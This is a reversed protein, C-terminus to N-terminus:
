VLEGREADLKVGELRNDWEQAHTGMSLGGVQERREANGVHGLAAEGQVTRLSAAGGM